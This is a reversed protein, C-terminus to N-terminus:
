DERVSYNYLCSRVPQGGTNSNSNPLKCTMAYAGYNHTGINTPINTFVNWVYQWNSNNRNISTLQTFFGGMGSGNNVTSGATKMNRLTCTLAEASNGSRGSHRVTHPFGSESLDRVVPCIINVDASTSTNCIGGFANYEIRSANASNVVCETGAYTKWDAHAPVTAAMASLVFLARNDIRKTKM